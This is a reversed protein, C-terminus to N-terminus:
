INLGLMLDTDDELFPRLSLMSLVGTAGFARAGFEPWRPDSRLDGTHCMRDTLVADLCPGSNLAYHIADVRTALESSPALTQFTDVRGRTLGGDQAGPVVQVALQTLGAFADHTRVRVLLRRAM